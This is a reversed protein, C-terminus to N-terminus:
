VVSKPYMIMVKVWTSNSIEPVKAYTSMHVEHFKLDVPNKYNLLFFSFFHKRYNSLYAALLTHAFEQMPIFMDKQSHTHKHTWKKKFSGKLVGASLINCFTGFSKILFSHM